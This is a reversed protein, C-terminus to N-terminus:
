KFFYIGNHNIGHFDFLKMKFRTDDLRPRAIRPNADSLLFKGGQALVLGSLSETFRFVRITIMIVVFGESMQM